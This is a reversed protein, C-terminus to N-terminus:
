RSAGGVFGIRESPNDYVVVADGRRETGTETDIWSIQAKLETLGVLLIIEYHRRYGTKGTTNVKSTFSTASLDAKVHCLTEFKDPEADEWEPCTSTGTYKVVRQSIHQPPADESMWCLRFRIERDELVKTGRSLMAEFHDPVRKDGMPDVYTKHARRSHEPNSAEYVVCTAAGYTFKSIRGTVFHDVYYSIAGVAVAKNTHMDPKCFQFGLDSLRRQLQESLWPSTAFGGVLFAFSNYPLYQRFNDRIADVTSQISPEFFGSVQTGALTLRGGKIGYRPDNDRLSGFRVFQPTQNNSFVKKVGEDFRQSFIALDDPTDFRSGRLKEKILATARATVLEGGQVLCKPEYLEEVQLPWNNLVKYTSIDITGGGADIIL